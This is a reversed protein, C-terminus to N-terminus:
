LIKYCISGDYQEINEYTKLTLHNFTIKFRSFSKIKRFAAIVKHLIRCDKNLEVIQSGVLKTSKQVVKGKFSWGSQLLKYFGVTQLIM